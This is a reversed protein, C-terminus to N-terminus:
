MESSIINQIISYTVFLVKFRSNVHVHNLGWGCGTTIWIYICINKEVFASVHVFLPQM